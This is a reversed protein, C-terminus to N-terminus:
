KLADKIFQKDKDDLSNFWAIFSAKMDEPKKEEPKKEKLIMDLTMLPEDPEIFGSNCLGEDQLKHLLNINGEVLAANRYSGFAKKVTTHELASALTHFLNFM